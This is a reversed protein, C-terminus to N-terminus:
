LPPPPSKVEPLAAAASTIAAHNIAAKEAEIWLPMNEQIEAAISHLKQAAGKMELGKKVLGNATMSIESAVVQENNKQYADAQPALQKGEMQLSYGASNLARAQKEYDYVRRQAQMREAFYPLAAMAAAKAISAQEAEEAKAMEAKADPPTPISAAAAAKVDAYYALAAARAALMTDKKADDFIAMAADDQEKAQEAATKADKASTELESVLDLTEQKSSSAAKAFGWARTVIEKAKEVDRAALTEGGRLGAEAFTVALLLPVLVKLAMATHFGSFPMWKALGSCLVVQAL